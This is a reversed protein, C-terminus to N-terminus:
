FVHHQGVNKVSMLRYSSPAIDGKRNKGKKKKAAPAEFTDSYLPPWTKISRLKPRLCREEEDFMSQSKEENAM